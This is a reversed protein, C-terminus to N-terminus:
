VEEGKDKTFKRDILYDVSYRGSGTFFLQQQMRVLQGLQPDQAPCHISHRRRFCHFEQDALEFLDTGINFKQQGQLM